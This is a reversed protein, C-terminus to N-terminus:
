AGGDGRVPEFDLAIDISPASHTLAGVSITDVGTEAYARVNELAIGGSAELWCDAGGPSQRVLRVAEAVVDPAMNDLLFARVGSKLAVSLQDLSDVELQVPVNPPTAALVTLVTGLGSGAVIHNDKVLVADFLGVRHNRGGGVRVAHKEFVRLGPTTKRTDSISAGTGAVADVYTRTVTAIGSLRQLINLAVREGTLIAQAPGRLEALTTGAEVRDGDTGAADFLVTTDLVGFVVRAIELGAVVCRQRTVIRGRALAGAPVVLATTVDGAGVDEDLYRRVEAHVLAADLDLTKPGLPDRTM